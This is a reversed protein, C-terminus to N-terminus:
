PNVVHCSVFEDDGPLVWDLWKLNCWAADSWLSLCLRSQAGWDRRERTSGSVHSCTAWMHLPFQASIKCIWITGQQPDWCIDHQSTQETNWWNEDKVSPKHGQSTILLQWEGPSRMSMEDRTESRESGTMVGTLGAGMGMMGIATKIIKMCDVSMKQDEWTLFIKHKRWRRMNQIANHQAQSHTSPATATLCLRSGLRTSGVCGPCGPWVKGASQGQWPQDASSLHWYLYEGRCFYILKTQGCWRKAVLYNRAM